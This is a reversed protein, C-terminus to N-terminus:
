IQFHLVSFFSLKQTPQCVHQTVETGLVFKVDCFGLFEFTEAKQKKVLM